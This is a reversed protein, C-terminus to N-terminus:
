GSRAAEADVLPFSAIGTQARPECCHRGLDGSHSEERSWVLLLHTERPICKKKSVINQHHPQSGSSLPLKIEKAICDDCYAGGVRGLWLSLREATTM